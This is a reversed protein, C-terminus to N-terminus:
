AATSLQFFARDWENFDAGTPPPPRPEPAEPESEEDSEQQMNRADPDHPREQFFDENRPHQDRREINEQEEESEPEFEDEDEAYRRPAAPAGEPNSDDDDSNQM